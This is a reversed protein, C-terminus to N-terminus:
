PVEDRKLKVNMQIRSDNLMVFENLQLIMWTMEEKQM